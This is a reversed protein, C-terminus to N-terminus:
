RVMLVRGKWSLHFFTRELKTITPDPCPVITLRYNIVSAIYVNVVEAQIKPNVEEQGM